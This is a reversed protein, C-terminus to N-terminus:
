EFLCIDLIVLSTMRVGHHDLDVTGVLCRDRARCLGAGRHGRGAGLCSAVLVLAVIM